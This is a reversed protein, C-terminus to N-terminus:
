TNEDNLSIIFNELASRKLQTKNSQLVIRFIKIEKQRLEDPCKM